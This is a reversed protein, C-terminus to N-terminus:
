AAFPTGDGFRIPGVRSCIAQASFSRRTLRSRGGVYDAVGRFDARAFTPAAYAQFTAYASTALCFALALIAVTRRFLRGFIRGHRLWVASLGGGILLLLAPQSVMAYRANFKPANYSLLLILRAAHAPLPPSLCPSAPCLARDRSSGPAACCPLWASSHSPAIGVALWLGIQESVSEGGVYSVAIDVLVERLKLQGPWYSADAGYRTLLHAALSHLCGNDLAGSTIGGVGLWAPRFGQRGLRSASLCGSFGICSLYTTRTCLRLRRSLMLSGSCSPGAARWVRSPPAHTAYEVIQLLLFSSLLGLFTLLSYMRLEQSYWVHLPSVALLLAAAFWSSPRPLAALCGRVGAAGLACRVVVFLGTPNRLTVSSSCGAMCCTTTSPLSFTPPREPRSRPWAM